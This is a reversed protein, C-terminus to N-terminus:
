PWLAIGMVLLAFGLGFGSDRASVAPLTLGAGPADSRYGRAAMAHSVREARELSRIFLSGVIGGTAGARLSLAGAGASRAARAQLMRRAEDGVAHFYRLAFAITQVIASPLRFAALAALADPEPTTTVFAALALLSTAARLGLIAPDVSPGAHPAFATLALLALFPLLLLARGALWRVQVRSVVVWVLALGALLVLKGGASPPLFAAAATLTLACGLKVRPDLRTALPLPSPAATARARRVALLTASVMGLMLGGGLLSVLAPAWAAEGLAPLSYDPAPAPLLADEARTHFGLTEAVRELGDPASSALPALAALVALGAIGWGLTAARRPASVRGTIVDPRVQWLLGIAAVTIAAEGVGIVAHVGLMAPLVLRAPVSGSLALQLSTLAAGLMVSTWAAIGASALCRRRGPAAGAFVRYVAYGGYTGALGMNLFNAGLATVGGDQFFFTQIVFVAAMVVSAAAPGLLVAALLAGLLHGSTGGAVPFNVMQAAFVYAATVGMRPALGPEAEPRVRHLAPGLATAAILGTTAAVPASLFGDPLHM